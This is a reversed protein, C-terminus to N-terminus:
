FSFINVDKSYLCFYWRFIQFAFTGMCCLGMKWTVVSTLCFWLRSFFISVAICLTLTACMPRGGGGRTENSIKIKYFSARRMRLPRSLQMIWAVICLCLSSLVYFCISFYCIGRSNCRNIQILLFFFQKCLEELLIFNVAMATLRTRNLVLLM